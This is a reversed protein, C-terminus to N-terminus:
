SPGPRPPSSCIIKSMIVEIVKKPRPDLERDQRHRHPHGPSRRDEEAAPRPPLAAGAGASRVAPRAPGGRARTWRSASGEPGRWGRSLGRGARSAAARKRRRQHRRGRVVVVQRGLKALQIFRQLLTPSCTWARGNVTSPPGPRPAGQDAPHERARRPHRHHLPPPPGDGQSTGSPRAVTFRSFDSFKGIVGGQGGGGGALLVQPQGARASWRARASGAATWSRATSPTATTSCCRIPRRRRVAELCSPSPATPDPYAVESQNTPSLLVPVAPLKVERGCKGSPRGQGRREADARHHGGGQDACSRAATCAGDSEGVARPSRAPPRPRPAPPSPPRRSRRRAAPPEARRCRSSSMATSVRMRGERPPEVSRLLQGRDHDPTRAWRWWRGDFFRDRGRLRPRHARM